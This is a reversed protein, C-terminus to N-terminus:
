NNVNYYICKAGIIERRFEDFKEIHCDFVMYLFEGNREHYCTLQLGNDYKASPHLATTSKIEGDKYFTEIYCYNLTGDLVLNYLRKMARENYRIKKDELEKEEETGKFLISTDIKNLKIFPDPAPKNESLEYNRVEDPSLARNYTVKGWAKCFAFQFRKPFNEVKVIGETPIAGPGAPRNMVYYSFEKM